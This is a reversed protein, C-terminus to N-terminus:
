RTVANACVLGHRTVCVIVGREARVVEVAEDLIVQVLRPDRDQAAALDRAGEGTTVDTLRRLRGEAKSVVKHAVAVIDSDALDGPAAGALLEGLDDGPRM